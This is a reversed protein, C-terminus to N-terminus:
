RPAWNHRIRGAVRNLPHNRGLFPFVPPRRRGFQAFQHAAGAHAPDITLATELAEIALDRRKGAAYVRALNAYLDADLPADTIAEECLRRGRGVQGNVLAVTVGYCSRLKRMFAARQETVSYALAQELPELAEHLRGEQFLQHGHRFWLEAVSPSAGPPMTSAM